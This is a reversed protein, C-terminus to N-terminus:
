RPAYGVEALANQLKHVAYKIEYAEDDSVAYARLESWSLRKVLQALATADTHTLNINQLDTIAFKM